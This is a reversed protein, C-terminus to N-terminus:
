VAVGYRPAESARGTPTNVPDGDNSNVSLDPCLNTGNALSSGEFGGAAGRAECMSLWMSEGGIPGRYGSALLSVDEQTLSKGKFARYDELKGDLFYDNEVPDRGINWDIAADSDRAGVPGNIEEISQSVGDLYIVPNNDVSDSNYVVAVHVWAAASLGNDGITWDGATDDFDVHLHITEVYNGGSNRALLIWGNNTLSTPDGKGALTQLTPTFDDLYLWFVVSGGGDWVDDITAGSGCDLYESSTDVFEVSM